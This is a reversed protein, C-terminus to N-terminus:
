WLKSVGGTTFYSPMTATDILPLFRRVPSASPAIASANKKPTM